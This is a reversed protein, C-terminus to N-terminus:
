GNINITILRKVDPVIRTDKEFRQVWKDYEHNLRKLKASRINEIGIREIAKKQFNYLNLRKEFRKELVIRIATELNAFTNQLSDELKKYEEVIIKDTMQTPITSTYNFSKSNTVLQNWIDNAYAPYVKGNEAIFQAIYTSKTELTNIASIQWLSWQGKTSDGSPSQLVAIGADTSFEPISNLMNQIITHQLTIHELNPNNLAVVSDFSVNLKVENWQMSLSGDIQKSVHGNNNFAYQTIMDELWIPLPSHKIEAAKRNDIDAEKILPLAGETSQFDNLKKKIEFLWKDGAYEFRTPDLLSQLYLQNIRKVDITSDM